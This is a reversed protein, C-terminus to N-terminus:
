DNRLVAAPQIGVARRAPVFCAALAVIALGASVTVFTLADAASVGFLLSSMLRTLGLAALAGVFIGAIVVRMGDGMVLRLVDASSGGLAMRISIDKRHQQVYYGMVGYIGVVSLVLAVLAFAAVLFSLSQPRELSQAVLDNMTAVKSLPVSPDIERVARQLAPLVGSPSAHTRVVLFRDLGRETGRMPWYVTGDDPKDLGLYKVESVVGGVSTWPCATCGGERFRKGVASGDPFFRRAWARDVVVTELNETLADREDLLRGELLRLGLVRFYEPTTSVWPAVPQSQGPPTPFDELDFNNRNSAGNPPLGDTFAVGAVGPLATVRRALEDWFVRVRGADQYQAAPLRISGTIVNRQDFGLDVNKMQNLSSLLLGAAILLPTAIAFQAAVLARRLRRVALNGTSSRGLSRLSADVSGGVGHLAPVLGFILGSCTALGALLWVVRTDLAMEQTRPFYTSGMGQLLQVGAWAVGAGLAVAGTALVASEALLYRVVRGRSAGLAARVALEQRRSTVRAILLNSANACAILWVLAVSGLALGAIAHVDGVVAGKLDEMGWTARDDQYSAKWMPFIRKNVARLEGAALSRDTGEPLRAVVSYLFPGKRRPPTFQQVIFLDQRRELPGSLAPLVGIVTHEAGDLKIPRGIADARGGLRQQWFAHSAVVSPPTGPRGDPEAFDRGIAPRVALVSFFAWSVVRARAVDSSVGDSYIVTRDTYTASEEFQTQQERFALYDAASFRWKFPPADTYIRVLREPHAYPLPRLLAADIASFIAATAGIGVGVTVIVTLSLIPVRMLSRLGIRIDEGLDQFMLSRQMESEKEEDQRRCYERAGELDGFQKLAERRADEVPMGTSRLEEVRMELHLRLEEDVEAQVSRRRIYWFPRQKM